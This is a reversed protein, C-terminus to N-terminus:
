FWLAHHGDSSYATLDVDGDRDIDVAALTECYNIKKVVVHEVWPGKKPDIAEYWSIPWDLKESHSLLVNM